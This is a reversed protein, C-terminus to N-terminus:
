VISLSLVSDPVESGCLEPVLQIGRGEAYASLKRVEDVSFDEDDVNFCLHMRNMKYAAMADLWRRIEKGSFSLHSADLQVGRWAFRPRDLVTCVPLTVTSYSVQTADAPLIQILTQYAYFLGRESNARLVIGTPHVELLYGEDGLEPNVTDYLSLEIDSSATSAVLKPHMHAHRLSQMIYKVTASNQGLGVVSVKPTRHLTFTGDKQVAFLPEPVVNLEVVSATRGCGAFVAAM